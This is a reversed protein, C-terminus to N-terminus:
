NISSDEVNAITRAIKIFSVKKEKSMDYTECEVLELLYDKAEITEARLHNTPDLYYDEPSHIIFEETKAKLKFQHYLANVLARYRKQNTTDKAEISLLHYDFLGKNKIM